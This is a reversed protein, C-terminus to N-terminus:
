FQTQNQFRYTVSMNSVNVHNELAKLIKAALESLAISVQRLEGIEANRSISGVLTRYLGHVAIWDRAGEIAEVLVVGEEVGTEIMKAIDRRCITITERVRKLAREEERIWSAVDVKNAAIM